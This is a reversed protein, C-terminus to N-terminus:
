IACQEGETEGLLIKLYPAKDKVKDNLVHSAADLLKFMKVVRSYESKDRLLVYGFNDEDVGTYVLGSGVGPQATERDEDTLDVIKDEDELKYGYTGVKFLYDKYKERAAAREAERDLEKMEANLTSFERQLEAM